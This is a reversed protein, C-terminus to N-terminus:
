DVGVVVAPGHGTPGVLVLDLGLGDAHEEVAEAAEPALADRHLVTVSEAGPVRAALQDVLASVASASADEGALAHLRALAEVAARTRQADAHSGALALAAVAAGLESDAGLVEVVPALRDDELLEGLEDAAVVGGPLVAVSHAGTDTAARALHAARVPAEPCAVVAVAGARAYWAALSASGTCAVVGWRAQSPPVEPPWPEPLHPADVLRVVVQERTGLAVADVATAPDDTHVHVHWWGDAGVVAVADGVGRLAARLPEGLDVGPVGSVLAMLEFAGGAEGTGLHAAPSPLWDLRPREGTVTAVLADLVVLLACAGADVVHAARLVPHEASIRGLARHADSSVQRLMPVLGAGADAAVLAGAAVADALTLVTGEQPDGTSERAARAAASLAGAVDSATARAPLVRALGALYQSVIVGSNGRAALLAGHAFVRAVDDAGGSPREAALADCGGTVTLLVNTGTDADAVPFVNIADIRERALELAGRATLAWARVAAADLVDV